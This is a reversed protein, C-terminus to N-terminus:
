KAIELIWDKMIKLADESFTTEITSYENPSGTTAPQFLHNLGPLEITKYNKNGGAKLAKEIETLNQKPDVQLDKGGNLALVPVTVQELMPRPDYKIFFRFWPSLIQKVNRDFAEKSNEPKKKDEVSMKSIDDNYMALLKNFM